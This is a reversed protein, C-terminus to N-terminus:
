LDSAYGLLRQEMEAYTLEEVRIGLSEVVPALLEEVETVWGGADKQCCVESPMPPMAVYPLM